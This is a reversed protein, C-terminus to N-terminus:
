PKAGKVAAAAPKASPKFVRQLEELSTTGDVVLRMAAESLKRMGDKVAAKLLTDRDVKKVIALRVTQGGAIEFVGTRGRYGTGHCLRCGEKSAAFVHPFTEASARLKALLEPPTPREERCKPCLKRVLRQSVVALLSEALKQRDVGLQLLRDIGDIAGSAQLAVVVLQEAEACAVLASALQGDALEPAVIVQPYERLAKEIAQAPAVGAKVDFRYPKVNQIERQPSAADEIAVFNRVLRDASQLALEFTTSGGSGGPVAVVVLGKELALLGTLREAIADKMGLDALTKFPPAQPSWRVLVQETNGAARTSVKGVWPKGDIKLGFRGSRRSKPVRPDIGCAAIVADRIGDAQPRPLPAAEVCQEFRKMRERKTIWSRRPHWVGDIEERVAITDGALDFLVGSANVAVAEAMLRSADAQGPMESMARQRRAQDEAPASPDAAIAVAPLLSMAETGSDPLEVGFRGLGAALLRRAHSPTLISEGASVVRNRVRSYALMPGWWALLMLLLGVPFVPIWWALLAMALFPFALLMGWLGPNFRRAVADQGLRDTTVVWGLVVIWWVALPLIALGGPDRAFAETYDTPWATMPSAGDTM